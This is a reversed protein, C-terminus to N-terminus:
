APSKKNEALGDAKLYGAIDSEDFSYELKKGYIREYAAKKMAYDLECLRASEERVPASADPTLTGLIHIRYGVKTFDPDSEREERDVIEVFCSIVPVRLKAAFLYAGRKPPRPKRYNFWMEQEPYILILENRDTLERLVDTFGSSLYRFDGSLPITDAYNLLYGVAGKMAFNTVQSVIYLKRKAIGRKMYKQVAYRVVTNELPSFHNSTIIAGGTVGKLNDAGVVETDRNIVSTLVNAARRAVFSKMRFSPSKRGRLYGDTIMRAEADSLVPDNIEVKRCFDGAEAAARINEIVPARDGGIIM